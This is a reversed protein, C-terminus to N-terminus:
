DLLLVTYTCATELDVEGLHVYIHGVRWAVSVQQVIETQVFAGSQVMRISFTDVRSELAASRPLGISIDKSYQRRKVVGCGM